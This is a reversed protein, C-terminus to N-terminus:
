VKQPIVFINIKQSGLWETCDVGVGDLVRHAENFQNSTKLHQENEEAIKKNFEEQIASVRAVHRDLRKASDELQQYASYVSDAYASYGCGPYYRSLKDYPEPVLVIRAKPYKKRAEEIRSKTEEKSRSYIGTFHLGEQAAQRKNM